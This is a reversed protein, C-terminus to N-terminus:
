PTSIHLCTFCTLISTCYKFKVLLFQCICLQIKAIHHLQIPWSRRLSIWNSTVILDTGSWALLYWEPWSLNTYSFWELSIVRVVNTFSLSPINFRKSRQELKMPAPTGKAGRLVTSTFQVTTLRHSTTPLSSARARLERKSALGSLDPGSNM